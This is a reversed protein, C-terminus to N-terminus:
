FSVGFIKIRLPVTCIFLGYDSDEGQGKTRGTGLFFIDTLAGNIVEKFSIGFRTDSSNGDELGIRTHQVGLGVIFKKRIARGVGLSLFGINQPAYETYMRSIPPEISIRYAIRVNVAKKFRYVYGVNGLLITRPSVLKNLMAGASISWSGNGLPVDRGPDEMSSPIYIVDNGVALINKATNSIIEINATLNLPRQPESMFQYSAGGRIDGPGVGFKWEQEFFGVYDYKSLAQKYGMNMYKCIFPAIAYIRSNEAFTYALAIPFRGEIAENQLAFLQDSYGFGSLYDFEFGLTIEFRKQPASEEKQEQKKKFLEEEGKTEETSKALNPNLFGLMVLLMLLKKFM